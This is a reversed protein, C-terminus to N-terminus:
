KVKIFIDEYIEGYLIDVAKVRIKVNGNDTATFVTSAKGNNAVSPNPSFFGSGNLIEFFVYSNYPNLNADVVNVNIDASDGVELIYPAVEVNLTALAQNSSSVDISNYTKKKLDDASLNLDIKRLVVGKMGMSDKVTLKVKYSALNMYTYSTKIDRSDIDDDKIGNGDSDEETNFDWEFRLNTDDLSPDFRSNSADFTVTNSDVKYTFAAQPLSETNEVFIKKQKSSSLGRYIVKLRVNYEGPTNFQRSISAGSNVDDFEGDGDFDWKYADNPLKDGQPDYADSIFSISDGVSITSKDMTFDVVPSVNPGNKIDLSNLELFKEESNIFGSDNDYVEVVFYYKNVMGEEGFSTIIMDTYPKSTSHLGLQEDPFGERYYWWKFKQISGDDDNAGVVKLPVKVPSLLGTQMNDPMDIFFDKIYPNKNIVKFYNVYDLSKKSTLNDTVSLIVKFCESDKSLEDFKYTFMKNNNKKGNPLSWNYSLMRSSGDSNVSPSADFHLIDSRSVVMADENNECVGPAVTISNNTDLHINSYAIPSDANAVLVYSEDVNENDDKDFFHVKVNYKSIKNYTHEVSNKSSSMTQGDGFEWLYSVAQPSNVRFKVEKNVSVVNSDLEIDASLISNISVIKSIQDIKGFSDKVQLVVKYDGTKKYEYSVIPEDTDLIDFNGDGNFDWSFTIKDGSDLDYSLISNYIVKNPHNKEPITFSFNSKPDRSSIDIEKIIKDQFGTIDTILLTILYHGPKEFNYYFVKDKINFITNGNEDDITWNYEQIMGEDSRSFDGLFKFKTNVDGTYPSMTINAALSKVFIKVIRKDKIGLNDTTELKVYYEGSKDYTHVVSSATRREEMEGDGYYWVYKVITRGLAPVTLSPDFTLGSQAENLTLHYIDSTEVGNIRFKVESDPPRAQIRIYSVGNTATKYGDLDVKSTSTELKISYTNIEKFEYIVVPDSGILVDNGSSDTYSWKYTNITGGTPDYSDLGSFQVSFPVNGRFPTAVIRSVVAPFSSILNYLNKYRTLFRNLRNVDNPHLILDDLSSSALDYANIIERSEPMIERLDDLKDRLLDLTNLANIFNELITQDLDSLNNADPNNLIEKISDVISDIDGSNNNIIDNLMDKTDDSLNNTDLQRELEDMRNNIADIADQTVPKSLDGSRTDDNNIPVCRSLSTNCTYGDECDNDFTCIDGDGSYVTCISNGSQNDYSCVGSDCETNNACESGLGLTGIVNNPNNSNTVKDASGSIFSVISYSLIILLIGVVVYTVISKAKTTQEDNGAATVLLIGAYIIALVAIFGLFGLFYNVIVLLTESFSKKSISDSIKDKNPIQLGLGGEDLSSGEQSNFDSRVSNVSPNLRSTPNPTHTSTSTSNFGSPVNSNIVSHNTYASIDSDDVNQNPLNIRAAAYVNLNSLFVLSFVTLVSLIFLKFHKIKKNFQM